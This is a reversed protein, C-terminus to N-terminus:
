HPVRRTGWKEVVVDPEPQNDVPLTPSDVHTRHGNRTTGNRTPTAPEPQDTDPAPMGPYRDPHLQYVANRGRAAASVVSVAGAERLERMARQIAKEAAELQKATLQDPDLGLVAIILTSHGAWYVGAAHGNTATDKAVYCMQVLVRAARDSLGAWSPNLAHGVLRIGM